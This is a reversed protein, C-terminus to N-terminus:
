IRLRESEQFAHKSFLVPSNEPDVQFITEEAWVRGCLVASEKAIVKATAKTTEELLEATLDCTGVDEALAQKVTNKLNYFYDM